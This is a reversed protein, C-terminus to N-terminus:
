CFIYIYYLIYIYIISIYIYLVILAIYLYIYICIAYTYACTRAYVRPALMGFGRAEYRPVPQSGVSPAETDATRRYLGM